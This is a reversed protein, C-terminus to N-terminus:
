SQFFSITNVAIRTACNEAAQGIRL